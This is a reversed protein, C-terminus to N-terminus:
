ETRKKACPVTRKIGDLSGDRESSFVEDATKFGAFATKQKINYLLNNLFWITKNLLIRETFVSADQLFDSVIGINKGYM